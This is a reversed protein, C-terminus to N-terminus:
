KEGTINKIYIGRGGVLDFDPSGCGPCKIFSHAMEPIFHIYEAEDEKRRASSLGFERGCVKCKFSAKEVAIKVKAGSFIEGSSKLLEGAAFNFIKRDIAQLEGFVVNIRLIRRFGHERSFNAASNLVSEALAWEHM